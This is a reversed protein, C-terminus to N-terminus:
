HKNWKKNKQSLKILKVIKKEKKKIQKKIKKKSKGSSKKEKKKLDRIKKTETGIQNQTKLTQKEKLTGAM